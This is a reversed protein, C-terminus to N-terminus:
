LCCFIFPDRECYLCVVTALKSIERESVEEDGDKYCHIRALDCGVRFWLSSSVDSLTGSAIPFYMTKFLVTIRELECEPHKGNAPYSIVNTPMKISDTM